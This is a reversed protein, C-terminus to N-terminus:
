LKPYTVIVKGTRADVLTASALMAPKCRIVEPQAASPINLEHIVEEM